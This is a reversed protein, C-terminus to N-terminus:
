SVKAILKKVQDFSKNDILFITVFLQLYVDVELIPVKPKQDIEMASSPQQTQTSGEIQMQSSGFKELLKLLLKKHEEGETFSQGNIIERLADVTLRRRISSLTRLVRSILRNEKTTVSKELLSINKKM